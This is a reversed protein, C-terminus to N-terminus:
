DGLRKMEAFAEGHKEVMREVFEDIEPPAPPLIEASVNGESLYFVIFSGEPVNAIQAMESTMSFIWGRKEDEIPAITKSM